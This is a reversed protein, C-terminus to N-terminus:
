RFHNNNCLAVAPFRLGDKSYATTIDTAIPNDRYDTVKMWIQYSLAATGVLM